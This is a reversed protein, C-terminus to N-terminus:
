ASRSRPGRSTRLAAAAAGSRGDVLELLKTVTNWNRYTVPIELMRDLRGPLKTRGMGNPLLLYAETGRVVVREPDFRERDLEGVAGADPCAAMFGVHVKTADEGGFPNSGVVERMAAASRIVVTTDVAFRDAVALELDGPLVAGDSEFVVNGSQLYTSVSRFGLAEFLTRLEGMGVTGRGGVNVARLLAVNVTV